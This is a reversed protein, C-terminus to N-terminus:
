EGGAEAHKRNRMRIYENVDYMGETLFDIDASDDFPTPTDHPSSDDTGKEVQTDPSITEITESTLKEFGGNM